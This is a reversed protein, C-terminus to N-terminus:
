EVKHCPNLYMAMPRFIWIPGSGSASRRISCLKRPWRRVAYMGCTPWPWALYRFIHVLIGTFAGVLIFSPFLWDTPHSFRHNSVSAGAGILVEASTYFLVLTAYYGLWRQPHYLPYSRMPRSGGCCDVVLVLM